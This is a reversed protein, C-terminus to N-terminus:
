SATTTTIIIIIIIIIIVQSEPQNDRPRKLCSSSFNNDSLIQSEEWSAMPYGGTSENDIESIQSMLGAASSQRSSFSLQSKLRTGAGGMSGVSENGNSFGAIRRM